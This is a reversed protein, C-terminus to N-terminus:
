FKGSNWIEWAKDAQLHLMHLGNITKAGKYEGRKLFETTVPNYILDYLLHEKTLSEYPIPPYSAINPFMGLPSTNIIIKCMAIISPSIEEYSIHEPHVPNRSVFTTRIGLQRLIYAVARSAGGTGLILAQQHNQNILPRLSEMFGYADTNFGMLTFSDKNRNIKITNVAGIQEADSDLQNLYSIVSQKYPITVNLGALEPESRILDPLQDISEIPFLTYRCDTIHEREFKGAFYEASFSHSLPFGVLGYVKM